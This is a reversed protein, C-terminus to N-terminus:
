FVIKLSFKVVFYIRLNYNQSKVAIIFLTVFGFSNGFKLQYLCEMKAIFFKFYCLGILWYQM